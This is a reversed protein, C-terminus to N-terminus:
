SARRAFTTGLRLLDAYLAENTVPGAAPDAAATVAPKALEPDALDLAKFVLTASSFEGILLLANDETM